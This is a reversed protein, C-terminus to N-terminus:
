REVRRANRVRYVSWITKRVEAWVREHLPREPQIFIKGDEVWVRVKRGVHLRVRKVLEDPLILEVQENGLDTFKVSRDQGRSENVNKSM